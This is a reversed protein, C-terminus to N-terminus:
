CTVSVRVYTAHECVIRYLLVPSILHLVCLLSDTGTCVHVHEFNFIIAELQCCHIGAHGAARLVGTAATIFKEKARLREIEELKAKQAKEMETLPKEPEKEEAAAGEGEEGKVAAAAAPPAEGEAPPAAGDASVEEGAFM